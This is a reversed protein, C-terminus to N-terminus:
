IFQNLQAAACIPTETQSSTCKLEPCTLASRLLHGPEMARRALSLTAGNRCLEAPHGRPYSHQGSTYSAPM